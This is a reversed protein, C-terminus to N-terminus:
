DKFYEPTGRSSLNGAKGPEVHAASATGAMLFATTAIALAVAKKTHKAHSQHAEDTVVYCGRASNWLTKFARDM